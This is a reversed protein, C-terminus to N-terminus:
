VSEERELEEGLKELLERSGHERDATQDQGDLFAVQETYRLRTGDGVAELEVTALSSSFRHEEARMTYALVIRRDAVIDQYVAENHIQPGGQFRFRSYERGGVQFDMSFEEVDWGEGEVFWRRKSVQNAFAKFVRGPPVPYGREISFSSHVVPQYEATASM